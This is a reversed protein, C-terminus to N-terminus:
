YETNRTGVTALYQDACAVCEAMGLNASTLVGSDYNRSYADIFYWACVSHWWSTGINLKYLETGVKSGQLETIMGSMEHVIRIAYGRARRVSRAETTKGRDM